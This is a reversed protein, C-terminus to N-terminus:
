WKSGVVFNLVLKILAWHMVCRKLLNLLMILGDLRICLHLFSIQLLKITSTQLLQLYIM